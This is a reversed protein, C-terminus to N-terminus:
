GCQGGFNKFVVDRCWYNFTENDFHIRELMKSIRIEKQILKKAFPRIATKNRYGKAAIFFDLNENHIFFRNPIHDIKSALM